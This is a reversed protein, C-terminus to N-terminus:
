AVASELELRGQGWGEAPEGRRLAVIAIDDALRGEAFSFASMFLSEPVKDATESAVSACAELLRDNGFAEGKPSRAEVLGDTYMVLLDGVELRADHNEYQMGGLAGLVGGDQPLMVPAGDARVIVPAPHGALSYAMHGSPGDILGFFASVFEHPEAGHLVLDNAHGMVSHPSPLRLVESRVASKVLSTLGVAESGHGSVDGILVGIQGDGLPIVDYFDGGVTSVGSAAHYLHGMEFGPVVAPASFFAGRLQRTLQRESAYQRANELALSLSLEMKQLLDRQADGFRLDADWCFGMVGTVDGRSKVPVLAFAGIDHKVLLEFQERRSADSQSVMVVHGSRAALAPLSVEDQAFRLGTMEAPWGHVNRFVWCSDEREAIWGWDAGLAETAEVLVRQLIDEADLSSLVTVDILNSARRLDAAITDRASREAIAPTVDVALLLVDFPDGIRGPVPLYLLQWYTVEGWSARHEYAPVTIPQGTYAVDIFRSASRSDSLFGRVPMGLLDWQPRVDELLERFVGNTWTFRLQSGSWLAAPFSAGELLASVRASDSLMRAAALQSENTSTEATM